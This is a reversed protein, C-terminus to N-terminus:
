ANIVSNYSFRIAANVDPEIDKNEAVYGEIMKWTDEETWEHLNLRLVYVKSTVRHMIENVLRLREVKDTDSVEGDSWISRVAITLNHAFVEYFHLRQEANLGNIAEQYNFSM